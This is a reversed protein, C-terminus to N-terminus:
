SFLIVPFPCIVLSLALEYFIILSYIPSLSIFHRSLFIGHFRRGNYLIKNQCKRFMHQSLFFSFFFFILYFSLFFCLKFFTRCCSLSVWFLPLFGSQAHSVWPKLLVLMKYQQQLLFVVYSIAACACEIVEPLELQAFALKDTDM